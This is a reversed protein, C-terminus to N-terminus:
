DRRSQYYSVFGDLSPNRDYTVYGTISDAVDRVRGEQVVRLADQYSVVTEQDSRTTVEDSRLWDLGRKLEYWFDYADSQVPGADVCDRLYREVAELRAELSNYDNQLMGM